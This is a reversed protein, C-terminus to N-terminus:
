LSDSVVSAVHFCHFHFDSLRTQRKTVGRVMCDMPTELVSYQPPYGRGEGPSRRLGPISGLDGVSCTSEKARLYIFGNLSLNKKLFNNFSINLKQTITVSLILNFKM